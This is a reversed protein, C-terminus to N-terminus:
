FIGAEASMGFPDLSLGTDDAYLGVDQVLMFRDGYRDPAIPQVAGAAVMALYAREPVSVTYNQLRRLQARPPVPAAAIAAVLRDIEQPDADGRWPVIVARGTEDIMEFARAVSAYPPAP